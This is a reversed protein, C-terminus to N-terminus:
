VLRNNLSPIGRTMNHQSRGQRTRKYEEGEEESNNNEEQNKDDTRPQHQKSQKQRKLAWPKVRTKGPEERHQKGM